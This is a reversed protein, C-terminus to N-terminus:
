IDDLSIGSRARVDEIDRRQSRELMLEFARKQKAAAPDDLAEESPTCTYVGECGKVHLGYLQGARPNSYFVVQGQSVGLDMLLLLM